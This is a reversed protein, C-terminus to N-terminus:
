TYLDIGAFVKDGQQSGKKVRKVLSWRIFSGKEELTDSWFLTRV